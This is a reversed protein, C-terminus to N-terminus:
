LPAAPANNIYSMELWEENRASGVKKFSARANAEGFRMTTNAPLLASKASSSSLADVTVAVGVADLKSLRMDAKGVGDCVDNDEEILSDDPLFVTVTAGSPRSTSASSAELHAELWPMGIATSTDASFPSFM